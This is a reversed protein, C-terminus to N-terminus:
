GADGKAGVKVDRARPYVRGWIQDDREILTGLMAPSEANIYRAHDDRLRACWVGAGIATPVLWTQWFERYAASLQDLAHDVYTDMATVEM